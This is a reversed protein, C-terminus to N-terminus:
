IYFTFLHVHSHELSVKNVSVSIQIEHGVFYEKAEGWLWKFIYFDCLSYLFLCHPSCNALEARSCHM